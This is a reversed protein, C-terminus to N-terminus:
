PKIKHGYSKGHAEGMASLNRGKLAEHGPKIRHAEVMASNFYM